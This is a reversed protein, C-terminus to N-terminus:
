FYLKSKEHNEFGSPNSFYVEENIYDNLFISKVDMLYLIFDRCCIFILLLRIAELCAVHAYIEEYDIREAQSYGKAM